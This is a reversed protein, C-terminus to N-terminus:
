KSDVHPRVRAYLKSRCVTGVKDKRFTYEHWAFLFHLCCELPLFRLFHLERGGCGRQMRRRRATQRADALCTQNADLLHSARAGCCACPLYWVSANEHSAGNTAGANERRGPVIM